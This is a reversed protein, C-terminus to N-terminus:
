QAAPASARPPAHKVWRDLWNTMEWLTHLTSEMGRYGHPENPLQVYRVTAGNGKLAAYFRESQIPFTGSNDDAMGHILLIPAKIRNAFTFPSMKTYTDIARWYDRQEAQFGFPTLTRNYAGSRAIGARFLDTHALLNATMFAGYSHGGVAMRDRDAVGMAVVADVAAKADATLQEVYTDNPEAGKAGVIPMGPGDLIAYGQTLLFLHSIGAPRTFHNGQDVTQGAVRPDTYETPYAWLLTPLPGDRKPDYGAPLYLTGSLPLGDARNYVITRKTVGAFQPEPDAFRTLQVPKAKGLGRVFLNPVEKASERRTLLRTGAADLLAVPREYYPAASRWLITEKGEELDMRALFPFEGAKTAGEAWMFVGRGDPTFQMVPEGSPTSRMLPVGPDAYQDQYNREAILRASGPASPNVISRRERRTKWWRDVVLAADDRGWLIARYRDQLDALKVPTDFPAAAMMLRDHFPVQKKPDGGDQAEAWALTSPTDSRWAVDRPGTVVADFDIPLNDALPRDAITKVPAGDSTLVAIERPFFEAPLLYSYPRKLREVLLFRGDPSVSFDSYLASAAVIRPAGGDLAIRAIPGSFYHEFLAEDHPSSLLDEYTRAAAVRGSSEQVIPGAPVAPEGPAAGRAPDVLRVFLSRSDPAWAVAPGFAANLRGPLRAVSGDTGVVWLALGDPQEVTLAVKTADPSWAPTTFRTGAPLAVDRVRGTAVDEFAIRNLWQTRIEAPGNRAPDIRYGGIRLIPRALAAVSPLTERTVIVLTKRDPSVSATPIPTARVMDPIPAPPTRYGPEAAAAPSALLILTAIAASSFGKIHM